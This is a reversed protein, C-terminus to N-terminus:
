QKSSNYPSTTWPCTSVYLLGKDNFSRPLAAAAATVPNPMGAPLPPAAGTENDHGADATGGGEIQPCTTTAVIHPLRLQEVTEPMMYPLCFHKLELMNSVTVSAVKSRKMEKKRGQLAHLSPVGSAIRM